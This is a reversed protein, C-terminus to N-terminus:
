TANAFHMFNFLFNSYSVPFAYCGSIIKVADILADHLRLWRDILYVEMDIESAPSYLLSVRRTTLSGLNLARFQMCIFGLLYTYLITLALQASLLLLYCLWRWVNRLEVHEKDHIVYGILPISKLFM